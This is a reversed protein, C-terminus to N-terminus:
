IDDKLFKIGEVGRLPKELGAKSLKQSLRRSLLFNQWPATIWIVPLVSLVTTVKLGDPVLSQTRAASTAIWSSQSM